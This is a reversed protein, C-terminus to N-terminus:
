HDRLKSIPVSKIPETTSHFLAANTAAQPLNYHITPFVCAIRLPGHMRSQDFVTLHGQQPGKLHVLFPVFCCVVADPDPESGPCRAPSDSEEIGSRLNRALFIVVANRIGKVLFHGGNRPRLSDWYCHM